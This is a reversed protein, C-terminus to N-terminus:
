GCFFLHTVKPASRAVQISSILRTQAAYTIISSFGESCLLFLYPSLPDGQRLGRTPVIRGKPEGNLLFSFSTSSVCKMVLNVWKPHFGLKLMVQTLYLWEVRDYAKSMDLKLAAFGVKTKKLHTLYHLSEHGLVINDSISRGPLFASQYEDIVKMLHLKMRNALVKAIIKYSVNCLSIPRFDSVLRAARVKPISCHSYSEMGAGSSGPEPDGLM